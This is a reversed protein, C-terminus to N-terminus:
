NGECLVLAFRVMRVKLVNRIRADSDVPVIHVYNQVHKRLRLIDFYPWYM